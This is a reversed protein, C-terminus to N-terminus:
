QKTRTPWTPKKLSKLEDWENERERERERLILTCSTVFNGISLPRRTVVLYKVRCDHFHTLCPSRRSLKRTCQLVLIIWKLCHSDNLWGNVVFKLYIHQVDRMSSSSIQAKSESVLISELDNHVREAWM